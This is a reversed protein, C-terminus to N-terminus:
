IQVSKLDMCFVIKLMENAREQLIEVNWIKLWPTKGAGMKKKKNM